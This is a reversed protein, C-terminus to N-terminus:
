QCEYKENEQLFLNFIAFVPLVDIFHSNIKINGIKQM